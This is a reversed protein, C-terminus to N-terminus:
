GLYGGDNLAATRMEGLLDLDIEYSVAMKFETFWPEEQYHTRKYTICEDDMLVVFETDSIVTCEYEPIWYDEKLMFNIASQSTDFSAIEPKDWTDGLHNNAIWKFREAPVINKLDNEYAEKSNSSTNMTSHLSKIADM